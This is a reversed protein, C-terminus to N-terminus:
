TTPPQPEGDGDFDEGPRDDGDPSRAADDAFRALRSHLASSFARPWEHPPLGPEVEMQARLVIETLEEASPVGIARRGWQEHPVTTFEECSVGAYDALAQVQELKPTSPPGNTRMWRSVVGQSVKFKHAFDAQRKGFCAFVYRINDALVSMDAANRM